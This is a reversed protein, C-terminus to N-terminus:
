HCSKKSKTIELAGVESEEQFHIFARKLRDVWGRGINTGVSVLVDEIQKETAQILDYQIELTYGDINVAQIGMMNTLAEYVRKAQDTTLSSALKIKRHKIVEVGKQAPAKHGPLGIYLHPNAVFRDQCQVSCFIYKVGAYETVFLDTSVKMHCVPDQVLETM